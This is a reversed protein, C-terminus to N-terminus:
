ISALQIREYSSWFYFKFRKVRKPDALAIEALRDNAMIKKMESETFEGNILESSTAVAGGSAGTGTRSLSGGAVAVPSPPPLRLSVQGPGGFNLNSMISDVSLSRCHRPHNASSDANGNGSAAWSEAENESSDAPSWVRQSSSLHDNRENKSDGSGSAGLNPDRYSRFLEELSADRSKYEGAAPTTM